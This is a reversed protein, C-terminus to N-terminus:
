RTTAAVAQPVFRAAFQAREEDGLTALLAAAGIMFGVAFARYFDPKLLGM